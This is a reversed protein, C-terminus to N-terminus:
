ELFKEMAHMADKDPAMGAEAHLGLGATLTVVAGFEIFRPIPRM